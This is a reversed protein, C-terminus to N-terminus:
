HLAPAITQSPQASATQTAAAQEKPMAAAEAAATSAPAPAPAAQSTTQSTVQAQSDTSPASSAAAQPVTSAAETSAPTQTEAQPQAQAQPPTQADEPPPEYGDDAAPATASTRRLRAERQQLYADRMLAYPDLAAQELLNSAELLESRKNIIGLGTLSNRIAVESIAGVPQGALDVPLAVTDRVTSAGFFPVVLYPGSPVGWTGLTLGFDQKTQPIRAETAIDFIGGFGLTSNLVFRWFNNTAEEGKGQLTSNVTSWADGLNSFFNRVGKQLLNPTVTTYATAVPKLVAKDVAENFKYAGRNWPELPDNPNAQPGTACGALLATSLLTALLQLRHSKKHNLSKSM